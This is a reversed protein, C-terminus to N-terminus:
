IEVDESEEVMLVDGGHSGETFVEKELIPRIRDITNEAM